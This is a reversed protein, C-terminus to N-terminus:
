KLFSNVLLFFLFVSLIILYSFLLYPLPISVSNLSIQPSLQLSVGGVGRLLYTAAKEM